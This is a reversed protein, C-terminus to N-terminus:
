PTPCPLLHAQLHTTPGRTPGPLALQLWHAVGPGAPALTKPASVSLLALLFFGPRLSKPLQCHGQSVTLFHLAGPHHEPNASPLSGPPHPHCVARQCRPKAVPEPTPVLSETGPQVACLDLAASVKGAM